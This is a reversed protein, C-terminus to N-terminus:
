VSEAPNLTAPIAVVLVTLKVAPPAIVSPPMMVPEVNAVVEVPPVVSPPAFVIVVLKWPVFAVLPLRVKTLVALLRLRPLMV